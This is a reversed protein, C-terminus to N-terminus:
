LTEEYEGYKPKLDGTVILIMDILTWLGCCGLTLLQIIGIGHYGLYFRHIGMLGVTVVLILAVLQDKGGSGENQRLEKKVAKQAARLAVAEKLGMKQGTIERIDRPRLELFADVSMNSLGLSKAQNQTIVVASPPPNKIVAASLNSTMVLLSFLFLLSYTFNKM